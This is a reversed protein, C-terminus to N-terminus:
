EKSVAAVAAKAESASVEGSLQAVLVRATDAAIADVHELAANKDALIRAEAEAVRATLGSEVDARRNDIDLKISARTEEAILGANRRAEALAAEYAAAAKETEQRLREAERLDGEIRNRRTELIAGIKPLAMRSMILYLAGFTIALWLLQGPFYAADFPPFASHVETGAYTEVGHEDLAGHEADLAEGGAPAAVIEGEQLVDGTEAQAVVIIQQTSGAM